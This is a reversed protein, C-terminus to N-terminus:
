SGEDPKSDYAAAVRDEMRAAYAYTSRFDESGGFGSTVVSHVIRGTRFCVVTDRTVIGSNPDSLTVEFGVAGEGIAPVLLDRLEQASTYQQLDCVERLSSRASDPDSFLTSQSYIISYDALAAAPDERQYVTVHAKKRGKAELQRQLAAVAEEIDPELEDVFQVATTENDFEDDIVQVWGSPLDEPALSMAGLNYEADDEYVPFDQSDDCAAASALILLIAGTLLARPVM